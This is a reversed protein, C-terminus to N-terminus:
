WHRLAHVNIAGGCGYHTKKRRSKVAAFLGIGNTYGVDKGAFLDNEFVVNFVGKEDAGTPPNKEPLEQGALVPSVFLGISITTLWFIRM